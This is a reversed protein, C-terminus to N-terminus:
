DSEEGFDEEMNDRMEALHRGIAKAEATGEQVVHQPGDDSSIKMDVDGTAGSSEDGGGLKNPSSSGGGLNDTTTNEQRDHDTPRGNDEAPRSSTAGGPAGPAGAGSSSSSSSAQAQNPNIVAGTLPLGSAARAQNELLNKRILVVIAAETKSELRQQKRQFDRKIDWNKKSATPAMWQKKDLAEVNEALIADVQLEIESTTLRQQVGAQLAPTKPYYNRFRVKPPQAQFPAEAEEAEVAAM